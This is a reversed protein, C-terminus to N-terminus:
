YFLPPFNCSVPPPPPIIHLCLMIQRCILAYECYVGEKRPSCFQLQLLSRFHIEINQYCCCIVTLKSFLQAWM